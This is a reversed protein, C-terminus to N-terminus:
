QPTMGTDSNVVYTVGEWEFTLEAWWGYINTANIPLEWYLYYQTIPFGKFDFPEFGRADYIKLGTIKVDKGGLNTTFSVTLYTTMGISSFVFRTGLTITADLKEPEQPEQPEEKIESMDSLRIHRIISYDNANIDYRYRDIEHQIETRQGSIPETIYETWYETYFIQSVGNGPIEVNYISYAPSIDEKSKHFPYDDTNLERLLSYTKLNIIRAFFNSFNGSINCIIRESDIFKYNGYLDFTSEKESDKCDRDWLVTGNKNIMYMRLYKNEISPYHVGGTGTLVFFDSNVTEIRYLGEGFSTEFRKLEKGSTFDIMWLSAAPPESSSNMPDSTAIYSGRFFLTNGDLYIISTKNCTSYKLDEYTDTIVFSFVEDGNPKFKSFWAKDKKRGMVIKYDVSDAYFTIATIDEINSPRVGLENLQQEIINEFPSESLITKPETDKFDKTCSFLLIITTLLIINKM